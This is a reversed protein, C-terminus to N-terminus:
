RSLVKNGAYLKDHGIANITVGGTQQDHHPQRQLVREIETLAEGRRM